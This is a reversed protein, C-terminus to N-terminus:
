VLVDFHAKRMSSSMIERHRPGSFRIVHECKKLGDNQIEDKNDGQPTLLREERHQMVHPMLSASNSLPTM